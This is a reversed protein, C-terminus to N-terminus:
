VHARGIENETDCFNNGAAWVMIAGKGDRGNKAAYQVAQEVFSNFPVPACSQQNWWVWSNNIVSAGKDVAHKLALYTKHFTDVYGTGIDMDLFRVPIIGCDWCIGAVGKSNNGKAAAIGAVSTGHALVIRSQYATTTTHPKFSANDNEDVFNWSRFLM